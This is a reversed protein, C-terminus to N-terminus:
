QRQWVMVLSMHFTQPLMDFGCLHVARYGSKKLQKSDRALTAVDSSVYIIKKAKQKVLISLAEKSLGTVPPDVIVVDPQLELMPLIEEVHGEYLSVNETEALNIAADAIADPHRDIGHLTEAHSALHHTLMGVGSYCDLVQERGTLEAMEVVHNAILGAVPPNGAFECGASIRFLQGNVERMVFSDGILNAM